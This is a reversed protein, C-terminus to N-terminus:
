SLILIDIWGCCFAFGVAPMYCLHVYGHWSSSPALPLFPLFHYGSRGQDQDEVDGERGKRGKGEVVLLLSRWIIDVKLSSRAEIM